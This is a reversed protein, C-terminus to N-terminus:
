LCTNGGNDAAPRSDNPHDPGCGQSDLEEERGERDGVSVTRKQNAM